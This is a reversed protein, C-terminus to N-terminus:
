LSARDSYPQKRYKNPTRGTYKTFVKSFYSSNNIGVRQAIETVPLTTTILLMKAKKVRMGIVYESFNEGTNKKFLYSLYPPSCYVEDAVLQLSIEDAIHEDMYKLAQSITKDYHYLHTEIYSFLEDLYTTMSDILEDLRKYRRITLKVQMDGAEKWRPLAFKGDSMKEIEKAKEEVLTYLIYTMEYIDNPFYSHKKYASFIDTVIQRSKEIHNGELQQTLPIIFQSYNMETYDIARHDCFCVLQHDYFNHLQIYPHMMCNMEYIQNFGHFPLCFFLNGQINYKLSFFHFFFKKFQTENLLDGTVNALLIYHHRSSSLWYSNMIRSDNILTAQNLDIDQNPFFQVLILNDSCLNMSFEKVKRHIEVDYCPATLLQILLNEQLQEMYTHLTQNKENESQQETIHSKIRLLTAVLNDCDLESKLLYESAGARIAQQAYKFEDYASLIIIQIQPYKSLIEKTLELGDMGPMRIDTILIDPLNGSECIELAKKGNSVADIIEFGYKEWEITYRLGNRMILEDDAILVKM